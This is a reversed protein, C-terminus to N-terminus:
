RANPDDGRATKIAVKNAYMKEDAEKLMAELDHGPGGYVLGCAIVCEIGDDAENLKDLETHWKELIQEAEEEELDWAIVMFEDGGMRYAAVHDNELPMLSKAAKILLKDGAEHGMTDNLRKLYNVDMNYVAIRECNPFFEEMMSLYKGKNYIRTLQDHESEYIIEERLLANEIFLRIVNYHMPFNEENVDVSGPLYMAYKKGSVTIESMYCFYDARDPGKSRIHRGRATVFQKDQEELQRTVGEGGKRAYFSEVVKGRDVCLVVEDVALFRVIVPLCDSFNGSMRKMLESQFNSMQQREKSYASLERILGFDDSVDYVHHMVYKEGEDTAPVSHVRYKRETKKDSIEWETYESIDCEGLNRDMWRLWDAERFDMSHNRYLLNGQTDSILIEGVNEKVFELIMKETNM